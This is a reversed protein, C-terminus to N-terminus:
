WCARSTCVSISLTAEVGWGVVADGEEVVEPVGVVLAGAFEAPGADLAFNQLFANITAEEKATRRAPNKSSDLFGAAVGARASMVTEVDTVVVPSVSTFGTEGGLSAWEVGAGLPVGVPLGEGDDAVPVGDFM